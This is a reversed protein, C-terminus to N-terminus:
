VGVGVVVLLLGLAEGGADVRRRLGVRPRCRGGEIWM